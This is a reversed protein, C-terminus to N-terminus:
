NSEYLKKLGRKPRVIYLYFSFILFAFLFSNYSFISVMFFMIFCYGIMLIIQNMTNIKRKALQRYAWTSIAITLIVFFQGGFIGFDEIIGRFYSYVNTILGGGVFVEQYIGQTRSSFGLLDFLGIFTKSGYAYNYNQINNNFWDDFAPIHGFIYNSLKIQVIRYTAMDWSGIRLMMVITFLGFTALGGLLTILILKVNIKKIKGYRVMNGVLWSSIFFIICGIFPAKTNETFLIFIEPIMTSFAVIREKKERAFVLAYGGCMPGSYVFILLIKNIIGTTSNGLYRQEAITNNMELLTNLDFLSRISFGNQWILRAAYFLGLLILVILFKNSLDVNVQYRTYESFHSGIRTEEVSNDNSITTISILSCISFLVLLWLLGYYHWMISNGFLIMCLVIQIGWIYVFVKNPTLYNKSLGGNILIVIFMM